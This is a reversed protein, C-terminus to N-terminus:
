LKELKEMVLDAELKISPFRQEEDHLSDLWYTNLERRKAEKLKKQKRRIRESLIFDAMFVVAQVIVTIIMVDVIYDSM